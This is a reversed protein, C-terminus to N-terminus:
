AGMRYSEALQRTQPRGKLFKRAKSVWACVLKDSANMQEGIERSTYGNAMLRMATIGKATSPPAEPAANGLVREVDMGLDFAATDQADDAAIYPILDSVSEKAQRRTAQIMADCLENWILRYAYTSLRGGQDTAVAKCLGICGIQVLDDYTYIGVQYPPKLKDHIVKHVLGMNEEVTNQQELTLRM